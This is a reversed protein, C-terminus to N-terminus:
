KPESILHDTEFNEIKLVSYLARWEGVLYVVVDVYINTVFHFLNFQRSLKEILLSEGYLIGNCIYKLFQQRKPSCKLYYKSTCCHVIFLGSDSILFGVLFVFYIIVKDNTIPFLWFQNSPKRGTHIDIHTQFYIKSRTSCAIFGELLFSFQKNKIM